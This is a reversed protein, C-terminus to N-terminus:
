SVSGLLKEALKCDNEIQKILSEINEFKMENRIFYKPIIKIMEGYLEENFNFVHIELKPKAEIFNPTIGFSIAGPHKQNKYEMFGAYIGYNLNYNDPVELNM